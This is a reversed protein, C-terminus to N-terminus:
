PHAVARRYERSLAELEQRVQEALAGLKEMEDNGLASKARMVLPVCPLQQVKLLPAGAEIVERGGRYLAMIMRLLALQRAPACYMDKEDFASQTLFGDKLM